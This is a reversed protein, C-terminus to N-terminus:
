KRKINNRNMYDRVRAADEYKESKVLDDLKKNLDKTIKEINDHKIDILSDYYSNMESINSFYEPLQKPDDDMNKLKESNKIKNIFEDTFASNEILYKSLQYPRDKFMKLLIVLNRYLDESEM